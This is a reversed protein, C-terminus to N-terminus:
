QTSYHEATEVVNEMAVDDSALEKCLAFLKKMGRIEYTSLDRLEGNNIAEVCDALDNATNEFRCYSMNPM